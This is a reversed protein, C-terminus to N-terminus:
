WEEKIVVVFDRMKEQLMVHKLMSGQDCAFLLYFNQVLERKSPPLSSLSLNHKWSVVLTCMNVDLKRSITRWVTVNKNLLCSVFDCLYNM